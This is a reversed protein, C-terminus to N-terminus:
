GGANTNARLNTQLQGILELSANIVANGNTDSTAKAKCSVIRDDRRLQREIKGRVSSLETAPADVDERLNAGWVPDDAILGRLAAAMVNAPGTVTALDGDPALQHGKVLDHAIDEQFLIDVVDRASFGRSPSRPPAPTYFPHTAAPATSADLAPVGAAVVLSYPAGESLDRDLVLEVYNTQAPVPLTAVVLPNGTSSDDCTLTFWSPSFAGSALASSFELRVRRVSRIFANRFDVM